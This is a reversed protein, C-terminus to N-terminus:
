WDQVVAGLELRERTKTARACAAQWHEEDRDVKQSLLELTSKLEAQLSTPLSTQEFILTLSRYYWLTGGVLGNFRQWLADGIDRHDMAVSRLNHLKDAASVLLAERPADPLHCLYRVKREWWEPKDAPNEVLSDSCARVIHGVDSGFTADIHELRAEGGADEAADHLLAGIAQHETGGHELVISAVGLLHSVYPIKTGKRTEPGHLTTAYTLARALEDTLPTM